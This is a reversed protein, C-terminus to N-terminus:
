QRFFVNERSSRTYYRVLFDARPVDTEISSPRTRLRDHSGFPVGGHYFNYVFFLLPGTVTQVREVVTSDASSFHCYNIEFYIDLVRIGPM